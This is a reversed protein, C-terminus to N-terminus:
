LMSLNDEDQIVISRPNERKLRFIKGNMTWVYAYDAKKAFQKTLWLLRKRSHTLNENIYLNKMGPVLFDSKNAGKVATRKSYIANRLNRNIFRAIIAPPDSVKAQRRPPLRHATSIDSRTIQIGVFKSIKVVTDVVDENPAVPM